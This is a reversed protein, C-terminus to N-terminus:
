ELVLVNECPCYTPTINEISIPDTQNYLKGFHKFLFKHYSRKHM